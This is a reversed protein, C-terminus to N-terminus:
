RVVFVSAKAHRALESGHARWIFDAFTPVHSAVVVLDAEVDGVAKALIEDLDVSPDHSAFARTSINVGPATLESAYADLKEAFEAPTHAVASPTESTVSALCLEAGYHAALDLAVGIAKELVAKHELDVPVMIKTFM